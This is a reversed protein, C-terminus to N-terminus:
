KGRRSRRKKESRGEIENRKCGRKMNTGKCKGEM